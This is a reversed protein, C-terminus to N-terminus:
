CTMAVTTMEIKMEIEMEIEMETDQDIVHVAASIWIPPFLLLFYCKLHDVHVRTM